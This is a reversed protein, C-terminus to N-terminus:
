RVYVMGPKGNILGGVCTDYCSRWGSATLGFGNGDVDAIAVSWQHM